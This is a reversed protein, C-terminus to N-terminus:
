EQYVLAHLKKVNIPVNGTGVYSMQGIHRKWYGKDVVLEGYGIYSAELSFPKANPDADAKFQFNGKVNENVIYLIKAVTDGQSNITKSLLLARSFQQAIEVVYNNGLDILHVPINWSDGVNVPKYPLQFFLSVLNRQKQNRYFSLLNGSPNMDALLQISGAQAQRIKYESSAQESQPETLLLKPPAAVVKVELVSSNKTKVTAILPMDEPLPVTNLEDVVKFFISPISDTTESKSNTDRVVHKSLDFAGISLELGTPLETIVGQYTVTQGTKSPWVLITNNHAACGVLLAIILVVRNM